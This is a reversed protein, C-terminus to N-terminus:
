KKELLRRYETPNCGYFSRFMRGFSSMSQFGVSYAIDTIPKDLDTLMVRASAMRVTNLYHYFTEGAYAKFLRSFHYKSFGVMRAVGELTLNEAYSERITQCARELLSITELKDTAEATDRGAAHEFHAYVLQIIQLITIYKRFDVLASGSFDKEYVQFLLGRVQAHLAQDVEPTILMVSPITFSIASYLKTSILSQPLSFQCFFRRGADPAVCEHLVGPQIFLIDGERLHYHTKACRIGYSNEVPMIIEIPLHWHTPYSEAEDNDHLKAIMGEEFRVTERTGELKEIM